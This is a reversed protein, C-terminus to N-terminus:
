GRLPRGWEPIPSAGLLEALDVPESDGVSAAGRRLEAIKKTVSCAVHRLVTLVMSQRTFHFAHTTSRWGDLRARDTALASLVRETEKGMVGSSGFAIPLLPPLRAAATLDRYKAVKKAAADEVTFTYRRPAPPLPTADPGRPRVGKPISALAAPSLDNVITVDWVAPGRSGHAHPFGVVMGDVRKNSGPDLYRVEKLPNLGSDRMVRVLACNVDDHRRTVDGGLSCNILHDGYPDLVTRDKCRCRTLGALAPCPVGLQRCMHFRFRDPPGGISLDECTPLTCRAIRGEVTCAHDLYARQQQGSMSNGLSREYRAKLVRGVHTGLRGLHAEGAVLSAVSPLPAVDERELHLSLEAHARRFAVFLPLTSCPDSAHAVAVAAAASRYPANAAQRLIGVAQITGHIYAQLPGFGQRWVGANVGGNSPSLELVAWPVREIPLGLVHALVRKVSDDFDEYGTRGAALAPPADPREELYGPRELRATFDCRRSYCLRTLHYVLEPDRQAAWVLDAEAETAARVRRLLHCRCFEPTGVAVGLYVFGRDDPATDPRLSSFGACSLPLALDAPSTGFRGTTFISKAPSISLGMDTLLRRLAQVGMDVDEIGGCIVIDDAYAQVFGGNGRADLLRQVEHLAPHIALCFGLAGAVDGQQTGRTSPILVNTDGHADYAM